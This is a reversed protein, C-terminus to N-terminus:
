RAARRTQRRTATVTSFDAATRRGSTGLQGAPSWGQKGRSLISSLSEFCNEDDQMGRFRNSTPGCTQQVQDSLSRASSHMGARSKDEIYNTGDIARGCGAYGPPQSHYTHNPRRPSAPMDHACTVCVRVWFAARPFQGTAYWCPGAAIEIHQRPAGDPARRIM